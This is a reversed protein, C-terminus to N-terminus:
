ARGAREERLKRGLAEGRIKARCAECILEDHTEAGCVTCSTAEEASELLAPSPESTPRATKVAPVTMVPCAARRAVAEAVSGLLAHSVGTRGHTGLVILDISNRRVYNLIQRAVRGSAIATVITLGKALDAAVARLADPANLPDTVPPLVHLV